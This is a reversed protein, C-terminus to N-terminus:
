GAVCVCVCVRVRVRVYIPVCMHVSRFSVFGEHTTIKLPATHTHTHTSTRTRTRTRTRTHTHTHTHIHNELGTTNVQQKRELV